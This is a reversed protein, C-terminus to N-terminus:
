SPPLTGVPLKVFILKGNYSIFIAKFIQPYLNPFAFPFLCDLSRCVACSKHEKQCIILSWWLLNLHILAVGGSMLAMNFYVLICAKLGFEAECKPVWKILM